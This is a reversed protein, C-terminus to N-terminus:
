QTKLSNRHQLDGGQMSWAGPMPGHTTGLSYSTWYRPGSGPSVFYDAMLHAPTGPVLLPFTYADFTDGAVGKVQWLLTLGHSPTIQVATLDPGNVGFDYLSLYAIGDDGLTLNTGDPVLQNSPLTLQSLIAGAPSM